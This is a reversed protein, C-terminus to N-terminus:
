IVYHLSPAFLSLLSGPLKMGARRKNRSGFYVLETLSFLLQSTSAGVASGPCLQRKFRRHVKWTGLMSAIAENDKGGFRGSSVSGRMVGKPGDRTVDRKSTSALVTRDPRFLSLAVQARACFHLTRLSQSM